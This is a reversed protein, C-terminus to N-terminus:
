VGPWGRRQWQRCSAEVELATPLSAQGGLRTAALAGAYNAYTIAERFDGTELYRIMLAATFADGAATVDVTEVSQAPFHESLGKATRLLAGAAGMKIVVAKANSRAILEAGATAADAVCRIEIGTLAFVETENPSLVDIDQIQELPFPRAPGADLFVPIGIEKAARCAYIIVDDPVELQLMLADFTGSAFAKRIDAESLDLNAGPYTVIANQRSSDLLIVAIGTTKEATFVFSTEIGEHRLAALLTGGDSDNGVKGALTVAAGLRALGVAQNAGKGGPLRSYSHGILSEGLHPMRPLEFVLDMNLSGVVLISHRPSLVAPMM